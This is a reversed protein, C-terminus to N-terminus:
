MLLGAGIGTRIALAFPAGARPASGPIVSCLASHVACLTQRAGLRRGTGDCPSDARSDANCRGPAGTPLRPLAPTSADDFRRPAVRAM